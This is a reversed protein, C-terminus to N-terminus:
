RRMDLARFPRAALPGDACLVLLGFRVAEITDHLVSLEREAFHPNVYM